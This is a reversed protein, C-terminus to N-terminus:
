AATDGRYELQFTDDTYAATGPDITRRVWLGYFEGDPIDGYVLGAAYNAPASFTVVAPATEENALREIDANLGEDALAIATADGTATPQAEIWQRTGILDLTAGNDNFAFIGRYDIFGALSQAGTVNQFLNQSTDDVIDTDSMTGGISDNPDPQAGGGVISLRYHLDAEEIPM